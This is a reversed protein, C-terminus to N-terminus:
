VMKEAIEIDKPDDIEIWGRQVEILHVKFGRNIIEQIIDLFDAHNFDVSQHFRGKWNVRCDYYTKRLIEAGYKSFYAIGIYEFNAMEFKIDTGIRIVEFDEHYLQWIKEDEIIIYEM